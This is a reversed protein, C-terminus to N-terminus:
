HWSENLFALLISIISEYVGEFSNVHPVKGVRAKYGFLVTAM